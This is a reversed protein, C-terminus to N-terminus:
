IEGIQRIHIDDFYATIKGELLLGIGGTIRDVAPIEIPKTDDIKVAIYDKNLSIQVQHWVDTQWPVEFGAWVETHQHTKRAIQVKARNTDEIQQAKLQHYQNPDRVGFCISAAAKSDQSATLNVALNLSYGSWRDNEYMIFSSGESKGILANEILNAQDTPNQVLWQGSVVKWEAFNGHDCGDFGDYFIDSFVLSCDEPRVSASNTLLVKQISIHDSHNSLILTHTDKNLNIDFGRVWHWNNYVPDNGVIAKDLDDIQAFIANACEDFWLCYAWIHYKGDQPIYFKYTAKGGAEGRWGRGINPAIRLGKEGMQGVISIECPWIIELPVAMDIIVSSNEASNTNIASYGYVIVCILILVSNVFKKIQM